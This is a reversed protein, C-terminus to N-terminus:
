AWTRRDWRVIFVITGMTALMLTGPEPVASVSVLSARAAATAAELSALPPAVEGVQRQWILFDRGDVDQDGDADGWSTADIGIPHAGFHEQWRVFDDGDVIGSDDFDAFPRSRALARLEYVFYDASGEPPTTGGNLYLWPGLVTAILDVKSGDSTTGGFHYADFPGAVPLQMGTLGSLNLVDDVNLVYALIPHSAWADVNEFMASNGWPEQHDNDIMLDFEGRIRFDVDVGAIGGSQNLVSFRPLFRYQTLTAPHEGLAVQGGTFVTLMLLLSLAFGRCAM